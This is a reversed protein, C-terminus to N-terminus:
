GALGGLAVGFMVPGHSMVPLVYASEGAGDLQHRSMCLQPSEVHRISGLPMHQLVPLADTVTSLSRRTDELGAALNPAVSLHDFLFPQAACDTLVVM